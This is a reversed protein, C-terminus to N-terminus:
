NKGAVWGGSWAREVPSNIVGGIGHGSSDAASTGSGENLKWYGYLYPNTDNCPPTTGLASDKCQLIETATRATLWFRVDDIVANLKGFAGDSVTMPLLTEIYGMIAGNRYIYGDGTVETPDYAYNGSTSGCDTFVGDVYFDIHPTQAMVAITCNASATHAHAQNALVVAIHYWGDHTGGGQTLQYGSSISTSVSQAYGIRAKLVNPTVGSSYLLIMIGRTSDAHTFIPAKVSGSQPKVWAEVTFETNAISPFYSSSALIYCNDDPALSCDVADAEKNTDAAKLMPGTGCSILVFSIGLFLIGLILFLLLKTKFQSLCKMKGGFTM